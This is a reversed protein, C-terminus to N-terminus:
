RNWANCKPGTKGKEVYSESEISFKERDNIADRLDRTKKIDFKFRYINLM